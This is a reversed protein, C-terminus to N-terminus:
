KKFRGHAEELAVIAPLKGDKEIFELSAGGGTSVHTMKEAFGFKEVAAASDGGGIITAAYLSSIFEAIKRTGSSFKKFEFVGLPGAWLV